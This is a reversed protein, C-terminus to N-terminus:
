SGRYTSFGFPNLLLPIHYHEQAEITFVIDVWPYFTAIGDKDFYDKTEFRMKYIGNELLVDNRILDANRGDINTIGRAVEIWQDNKNRYLVIKVDKAPKGKTTDLIHTTLQSM